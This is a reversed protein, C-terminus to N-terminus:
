QLSPACQAGVTDGLVEDYKGDTHTAAGAVGGEGGVTDDDVHCITMTAMATVVM